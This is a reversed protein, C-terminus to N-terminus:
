EKKQQSNETIQDVKDIILICGVFMFFLVALPTLAYILAKSKKERAESDVGSLDVKRTQIATDYVSVVGAGGCRDPPSSQCTVDCLNDFRQVSSIFSNECGCSANVSYGYYKYKRCYLACDALYIIDTIEKQKRISVSSLSFCGVNVNEHYTTKYVNADTKQYRCKVLFKATNMCSCLKASENFVAFSFIRIKCFRICFYLSVGSRVNTKIRNANMDTPSLCGYISYTQCAPHHIAEWEKNAGHNENSICRKGFNLLRDHKSFFHNKLLSIKQYGGCEQFPNDECRLFCPEVKTNEAPGKDVCHCINKYIIGAFRRKLKRCHKFCQPHGTTLPISSHQYAELEEAAKNYRYCGIYIPTKGALCNVYFALKLLTIFSLKFM